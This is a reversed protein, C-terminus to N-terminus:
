VRQAKRHGWCRTLENSPDITLACCNVHLAATPEERKLKAAPSKSESDLAREERQEFDGM